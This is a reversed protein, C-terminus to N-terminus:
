KLARRGFYRGADECDMMADATAVIAIGEEEEKVEVLCFIDGVMAASSREEWKLLLEM